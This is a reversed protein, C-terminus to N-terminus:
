RSGGGGPLPCGAAPSGTDGQHHGTRSPSRAHGGLAWLLTEDAPVGANVPDFRLTAHENRGGGLGTLMLEWRRWPGVCDVSQRGGGRFVAATQVTVGYLARTLLCAGNNRKRWGDAPQGNHNVSIASYATDCTSRLLVGLRSLLKHKSLM